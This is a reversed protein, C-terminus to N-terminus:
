RSPGAPPPELDPSIVPVNEGAMIKDALVKDHQELHALANGSTAALKNNLVDLNHKQEELIVAREESRVLSVYLAGIRTYLDKADETM